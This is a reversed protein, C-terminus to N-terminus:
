VEQGGRDNEAGRFHSLDDTKGCLRGQGGSLGLRHGSRALQNPLAIVVCDVDKDDFVRRMDTETKAKGGPVAKVREAFLNEDVDCLTVIRLARRHGNSLSIHNRGQNRIGIIATNIRENAGLKPM